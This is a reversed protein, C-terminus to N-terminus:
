SLYDKNSNTNIAQLIVANLKFYRARQLILSIPLDATKFVAARPSPPELGEDEAGSQGTVCLSRLAVFDLRILDYKARHNIQKLIDVNRIFFANKLTSSLAKM